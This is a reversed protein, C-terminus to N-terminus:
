WTKSINVNDLEKRTIKRLSTSRHGLTAALWVIGLGKRRTLVEQQFFMSSAPRESEKPFSHDTKPPLSPLHFSHSALMAGRRRREAAASAAMALTETPGAAPQHIRLVNTHPKGADFHVKM